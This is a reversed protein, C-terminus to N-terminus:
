SPLRPYIQQLALAFALALSAEDKSAIAQALLLCPAWLRDLKKYMDPPRSRIADGVLTIGFTGDRLGQDESLGATEYHELFYAYLLKSALQYAKRKEEVEAPSWDPSPLDVAVQHLGGSIGSCAAVTRLSMRDEYADNARAGGLLVCLLVLGAVFTRM